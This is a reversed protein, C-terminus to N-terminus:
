NQKDRFLFDRDSLSDIYEYNHETLYSQLLSINRSEILMYKFRFTNHDIGKLVEIEAGEVDLSMFDINSPTSENILISNLTKAVAGFVFNNEESNLSKVGLEAHAMSDTIDSELNTAVSMLNSYIIPVFKDKYDFGVCAACIISNSKSRNKKCQLYKHPVPEILSGSWNRYKEFYYTNSQKLGDNAGLEVYFGNEYNLYNQLLKYNLNKAYNSHKNLLLKIRRIATSIVPPLLYYTIIRIYNAM